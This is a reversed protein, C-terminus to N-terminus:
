EAKVGELRKATEDSKEQCPCITGVKSYGHCVQCEALGTFAAGNNDRLTVGEVSFCDTAHAQIGTLVKEGVVTLGSKNPWSIYHGSALRVHVRDTEVTFEKIASPKVSFSNVNRM